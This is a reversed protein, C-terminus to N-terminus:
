IKKSRSLIKQMYKQKLCTDNYDSGFRFSNGNPIIPSFSYLKLLSHLIEILTSLILKLM